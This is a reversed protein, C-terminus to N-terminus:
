FLISYVVIESSWSYVVRCREPDFQINGLFNYLQIKYNCAVSEVPAGYHDIITVIADMMKGTIEALVDEM